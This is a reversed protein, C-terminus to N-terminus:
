KNSLLVLVRGFMFIVDFINWKEKKTNCFVSFGSSLSVGCIIRLGGFAVGFFLRSCDMCLVIRIKSRRHPFHHLPCDEPFCVM